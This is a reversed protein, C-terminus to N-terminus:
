AKFLLMIKLLVFHKKKILNLVIRKNRSLSSVYKNEQFNSFNEFIYNIFTSVNSKLEKLSSMKIVRVVTAILIHDICLYELEEKFEDYIGKEKYYTILNNFAFIIDLNKQINSSTMISGQRIIYHYLPKSVFSIKKAYLYLKPVLMLDEYIKGIEFRMESNKFLDINYMKNWAAFRNLLIKKDEYVSSLTHPVYNSYIDLRETEEYEDYIDCISIDSNNDKISKYLLEVMDEEVYDDSDIFMIYKGTAKKLGFNRADSLGGNKKIYSKIIKPYKKAYKDIIEQSNDPSGDNVVIIELNNHTQKVLSTLCRDLYKYVNYVPVVISVKEM